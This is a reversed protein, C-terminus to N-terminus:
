KSDTPDKAPITRPYSRMYAVSGGALAVAVLGVRGSSTAAGAGAAAPIGRLGSAINLFIRHM